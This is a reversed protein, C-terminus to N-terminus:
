RIGDASEWSENAVKEYEITPSFSSTQTIYSKTGQLEMQMGTINRAEALSLFLRLGGSPWFENAPSKRYWLMAIRTSLGM